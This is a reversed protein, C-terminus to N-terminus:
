RQHRDVPLLSLGRDHPGREDEVTRSDGHTEVDRETFAYEPASKWNREMAVVSRKVIDSPNPAAGRCAVAM